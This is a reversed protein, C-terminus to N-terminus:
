AGSWRAFVVVIFYTGLIVGASLGLVVLWDSGRHFPTKQHDGPTIALRAAGLVLPVHFVPSYLRSLFLACAM